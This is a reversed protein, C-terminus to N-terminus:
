QPKRKTQQRTKLSQKKKQLLDDLKKLYANEARLYELEEQLEKIEKPSLETQLQNHKTMTIKVCGKPCHQSPDLTGTDLLKQWKRIVSTGSKIRFQFATQRYCLQHKKKYALVRKKFELSYTQAPRVEFAKAGYLQYQQRWDTFTSKYISHKKLLESLSIETTLYELVVQMKFEPTYKSM